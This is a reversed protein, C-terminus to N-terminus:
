YGMLALMKKAYRKGLERYGESNFHVHDTQASCNKSSIVHATEITQPLTGIITNMSACVGKQDAHVVEGVLLPVKEPRLSLDNLLDNYIVHVYNPWQQDGTNTEGQHLLIGKIVGDKQAGKALDVLYKYPNGQYNKVKNLFWDQTYTSDYEQYTKKNFFRIDCGGIAVNIIGITISDPLNEVMTRGFYDVPSLRSYCQCLPPKAIRWEGKKADLNPCDLAQYVKFRRNVSTDQSEIAGQGEMNSQGFCLYIHFNKNQSFLSSSIFLLGIIIKLRYKM